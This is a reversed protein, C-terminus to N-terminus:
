SGDITSGKGGRRFFRAVRSPPNQQRRQISENLAKIEAEHLERRREVVGRPRKTVASNLLFLSLMVLILSPVTLTPLVWDPGDLVHNMVLLYVLPPVVATAAGLGAFSYVLSRLIYSEHDEDTEIRHRAVLVTRDKFRWVVGVFVRFWLAGVFSIYLPVGVVLELFFTEPPRPFLDYTVFACTGVAALITLLRLTDSTTLAPYFNWASLRVSRENISQSLTSKTTGRLGNLIAVEEVLERRLRRASTIPASILATLVGVVVPAIYPLADPLWDYM